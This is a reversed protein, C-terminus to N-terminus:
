TRTVRLIILVISLALGFIMGIPFFVSIGTWHGVLWGIGGYLVMGGIMYSLIRWGDSEHAEPPGQVPPKRQLPPGTGTM